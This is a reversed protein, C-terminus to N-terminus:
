EELLLQMFLLDLWKDFKYAVEKLVGAETFGFKKHFAISGANDADICGVMCHYGESRCLDILHSLLIRGVGKGHQGEDVYVSHEVTPKFGDKFRFTGYTAFGTPTGKQEAIIVPWNGHLKDTFWQNIEAETKPQYDYLATSHLINHNMVQRIFPLDAITAQRVTQM